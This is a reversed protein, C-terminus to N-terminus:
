PESNFVFFDLINMAGEEEGEGRKMDEEEPRDV